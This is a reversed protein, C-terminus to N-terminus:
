KIYKTIITLVISGFIFGVFWNVIKTAAERDGQILKLVILVLSVMAMIGLIVTLLASMDTMLAGVGANADAWPDAPGTSSLIFLGLAKM